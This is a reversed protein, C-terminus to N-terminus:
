KPIELGYKKSIDLPPLPGNFPKKDKVYWEYWDLIRYLLDIQGTQKGNGHGEGPYQVLRVAPHGTMKLRRYLELSQSPHVRTDATGGLILTATKSQHAWYIPSRKLSVDWLEELKEGSHVYLEEYPIDLTGRRSVLDSIGVFMCVAKVYKTYYTAFWASAFGGYSIGGLGVRNKDVKGTQILHDIGDALDDFEKGAPDEFGHLSFNVGYGTSSRYNPYFVFYGEGSLIQGPYSYSTVWGNSYHMEPGGHVLVVLPYKEDEIYNVPYLLIGEIELGDRSKYQIVEQKGLKRDSLWPNLTTLRQLKNGFNLYFIERSHNPSNGVVVMHKFDDSFGPTSFVIGSDKSNQIVKREGSSLKVTTITTEVGEGAHYIITNKDKWGVWGIHGVFNPPTMNIEKGGAVPAVFVQSVAPDKKELAATYALNDGDPSFSYNGLKRTDKKIQRLQKGQLDLISISQFMFSYDILNKETTAAAITNGDPSFEFSWVTINETLQETKSEVDNADLHAIHLNRHKLNEEYFIFGYGKRQLATERQSQPTVTLYGIKKGSPHWKYSSINNQARTLQKAEGGDVPIMWVQTKADTGRRSLFSIASGDPKWDISRIQVKGTIFPRIEGSKVSVMYLEYYAYGPAENAQRPVLVTYVIQDGAPSIKASLVRKMNLLDKPSLTQASVGPYQSSLFVVFFSILLLLVNSRFRKM